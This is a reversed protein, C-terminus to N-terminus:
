SGEINWNLWEPLWNLGGLLKVTMRYQVLHHFPEHFVYSEKAERGKLFKDYNMEKRRVAM